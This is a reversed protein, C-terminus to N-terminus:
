FLSKTDYIARSYNPCICGFSILNLSSQLHAKQRRLYFFYHTILQLLPSAFVYLSFELSMNYIVKTKGSFAKPCIPNNTVSPSSIVNNQKQFKTLLRKETNQDAVEKIQWQGSKYIIELFISHILPVMM